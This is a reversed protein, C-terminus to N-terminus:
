YVFVRFELYKVKGNITPLDGSCAGGRLATSTLNVFDIGEM